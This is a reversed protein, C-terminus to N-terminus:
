IKAHYLKMFTTHEVDVFIHVNSTVPRYHLGFQECSCEPLTYKRSSLLDNQNPYGFMLKIPFSSGVLM